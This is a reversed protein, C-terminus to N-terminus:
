YISGMLMVLHFSRSTINENMIVLNFVVLSGSVGFSNGIASDYGYASTTRSSSSISTFNGDM